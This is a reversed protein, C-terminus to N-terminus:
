RFYDGGQRRVSLTVTEGGPAELVFIDKILTVGDHNKLELTVDQWRRGDASTYVQTVDHTLSATDIGFKEKILAKVQAKLADREACVAKLEAETREIDTM